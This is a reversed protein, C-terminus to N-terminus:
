LSAAHTLKVAVADSRGGKVGSDREIKLCSLLRLTLLKLGGSYIAMM